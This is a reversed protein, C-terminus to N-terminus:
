AIRWAGTKVWDKGIEIVRRERLDVYKCNYKRSQFIYTIGQHIETVSSIM